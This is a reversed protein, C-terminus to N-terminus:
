KPLNKFFDKDYSAKYACTFGNSGGTSTKSCFNDPNGSWGNSTTGEAGMPLLKGDEQIQFLFFDHGIKNPHKKMGNIDIGITIKNKQDCHNIAVFTGDSSIFQGDDFWAAAISSRGTYSKYGKLGLDKGEEDKELSSVCGSKGCNTYLVFYKNFVNAFETSCPSYSNWTAIYGQEANMRLVAQSLTSYAKKYQAELEKGQTINILSPITIAAVVGIIGLTILVEALTFGRLGKLYHLGQM